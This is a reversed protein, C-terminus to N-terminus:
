YQNSEKKNILISEKSGDSRNFIWEINDGKSKTYMYTGSGGVNAGLYFQLAGQNCEKVCSACGWCDKKYKIVAFGNEDKGILNGPCVELCKGCRICKESQIRISM